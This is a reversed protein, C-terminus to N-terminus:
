WTRTLSFLDYRPSSSVPQTALPPLPRSPSMAVSPARILVVIGNFACKASHNETDHAGLRRENWRPSVTVASPAYAVCKM